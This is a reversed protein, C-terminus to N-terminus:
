APIAPGAMVGCAGFDSVRMSAAITWPGPPLMKTFNVPGAAVMARDLPVISAPLICEVIGRSRLVDYVAGTYCRALRDALADASSTSATTAM